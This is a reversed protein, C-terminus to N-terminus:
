GSLPDEWPPLPRVRGMGGEMVWSGSIRTETSAAAPRHRGTAVIRCRYRGAPAEVEVQEGVRRGLLAQALPSEVSIRVDDVPAEVPDVLLFRETEAADFEVMVEDGLEVVGGPREPPLEGTTIAQGLISTLRALETVARGYEGGAWGDRDPSDLNHALRPIRETALWAARAALRRHGDPTLVVAAEPEPAREQQQAPRRQGSRATPSTADHDATCAM